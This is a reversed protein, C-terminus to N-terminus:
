QIEHEKGELLKSHMQIKHANDIKDFLVQSKKYSEKLRNSLYLFYLIGLCLISLSLAYVIHSFVYGNYGEKLFIKVAQYIDVGALIPFVSIIIKGFIDFELFGIKIKNFM